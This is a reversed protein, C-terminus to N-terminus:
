IDWRLPFSRLVLFFRASKAQQNVKKFRPGLDLEDLRKTTVSVHSKIAAAALM